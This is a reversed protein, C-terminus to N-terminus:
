SAWCTAPRWSRPWRGSPGAATSAFSPFCSGARLKPIALEITGARTDRERRWCGNRSSPCRYSGRWSCRWRTWKASWQVCSLHRLWAEGTEEQRKQPDPCPWASSPGAILRLARSCCARSEIVSRSASESGSSAANSVPNVRSADPSSIGCRSLIWAPGRRAIRHERRWRRCGRPSSARRGAPRIDLRRAKWHAASSSDSRVATVTIATVVARLWPLLWPAHVVNQFGAQAFGAGAGPDRGAECLGPVGIAVALPLTRPRRQAVILDSGAQVGAALDDRFPALPEELM